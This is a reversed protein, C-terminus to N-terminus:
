PTIDQITRAPPLRSRRGAAGFGSYTRRPHDPRGRRRTPSACAGCAARRTSGSTPPFPTAPYDNRRGRSARAIAAPLAGRAAGPRRAGRVADRRGGGRRDAHADGVGDSTPSRACTRSSTPSRAASSRPSGGRTSSRGRSSAPDDAGGPREREHLHVPRRRDLEQPLGGGPLSSTSTRAGSARVLRHRDGRRTVTAAASRGRRDYRSGRRGAGRRARARAALRRPRPRTAHGRGRHRRAAAAPSRRARSARAAVLRVARMTRRARSASSSARRAAAAAHEARLVDVFARRDAVVRHARVGRGRPHPAARLRLVAGEIGPLVINDPVLAPGLGAAALRVAGEAQSTRVTGRPSFGARRCVEDLIGALGHDPHYLVWERDALEELRITRAHGAPRGAAVVVVFEEWASWRSRAKGRECRCRGSRSTPSGRSSLRRSCRATASSRSGSRRREPLARALGPHPAAAAGVAMSLVTAIELEGAELALAARAGATRARGRAGRRPSGAAPQARGTHARCRAAPARARGRRARGRARPHAALAVAPHHRRAARRAHVIGRRRRRRLVRAAPPEYASGIAGVAM